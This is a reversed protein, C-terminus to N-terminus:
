YGLLLLLVAFKVCKNLNNEWVWSRLSFSLDSTASGSLWVDGPGNSTSVVSWCRTCRNSRLQWIHVPFICGGPSGGRLSSVIISTEVEVGYTTCVTAIMMMMTVKMVLWFYVLHFKTNLIYDNADLATMMMM